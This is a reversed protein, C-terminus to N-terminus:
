EHHERRKPSSRAVPSVRAWTPPQLAAARRPSRGALARRGLIGASMGALWDDINLEGQYVILLTEPMTTALVDIVEPFDDLLRDHVNLWDSAVDLGPVTFMFLRPV